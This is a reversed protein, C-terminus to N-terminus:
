FQTTCLRCNFAKNIMVTIYAGEDVPLTGLLDGIDNTLLDMM